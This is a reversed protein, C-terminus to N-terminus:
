LKMFKKNSLLSADRKGIGIFRSLIVMFLYPMKYKTNPSKKDNTHEEVIGAIAADTMVTS